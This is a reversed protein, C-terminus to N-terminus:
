HGIFNPKRKEFFARVAETADQSGFCQRISNLEDKLQTTLQGDYSQVLLRKSLTMAIPPGSAIKSAFAHVSDSFDESSFVANALGLQEAEAAEVDRGTLILEMAKALGILRPLYYTMGADPSLGNRIYGTTIKATSKMVRLDCSLAMALGAGAAPGNIAAIVPKDNNVIAFTLRGVWELTDLRDHRSKETSILEAVGTLDLGSCFGRGAGTIVIARVEDDQSAEKLAQILQNSLRATFANLKDPRNLTLTCVGDQKEVLLDSMM